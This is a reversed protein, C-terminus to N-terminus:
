EQEVEVDVYDEDTWEPYQRPAEGHSEVIRPFPGNAPLPFSDLVEIEHRLDDGFDFIYLVKQGPRLELDALTVEDTTPPEVDGGFPGKVETM